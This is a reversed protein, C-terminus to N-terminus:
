SNESLIKRRGAMPRWFFFGHASDDRKTEVLGQQREYDVRVTSYRAEISQLFPHQYIM